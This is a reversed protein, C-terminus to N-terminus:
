GLLDAIERAGSSNVLALGISARAALELPSIGEVFWDHAIRDMGEGILPAATRLSARLAVADTRGWHLALNRHRYIRRLAIEIYNRVDRLYENPESLAVKM